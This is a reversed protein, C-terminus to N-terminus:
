RYQGQLGALEYEKSREGPGYASQPSSQRKRPCKLLTVPAALGGFDLHFINLDQEDFNGKPDRAALRTLLTRM